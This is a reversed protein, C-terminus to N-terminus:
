IVNGKRGGDCAVAEKRISSFHAAIPLVAVYSRQGKALRERRMNSNDRPALLTLATEFRFNGIQVALFGGHDIPCLPEPAGL